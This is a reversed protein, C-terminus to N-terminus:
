KWLKLFYRILLLLTVVFVLWFIITYIIPDGAYALKFYIGATAASLLWLLGMSITNIIRLFFKRVEPDWNSEM